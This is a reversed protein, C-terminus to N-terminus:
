IKPATGAAKKPSAGFNQGFTPSRVSWNTSFHMDNERTQSIRIEDSLTSRGIHRVQLCLIPSARIEGPLLPKSSRVKSHRVQWRVSFTEM